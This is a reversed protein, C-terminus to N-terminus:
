NNELTKDFNRGRAAAYQLCRSFVSSTGAVGRTGVRHNTGVHKNKPILPQWQAASPMPARPRATHDIVPAFQRVIGPERINSSTLSSNPFLPCNWM